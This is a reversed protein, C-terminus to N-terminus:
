HGNSKRREILQQITDNVKCDDSYRNNKHSQHDCVILIINFIDTYLRPCPNCLHETVTVIKPQRDVLDKIQKNDSIRDHSCNNNDLNDTYINTSNKINSLDNDPFMIIGVCRWQEKKAEPKIHGFNQM